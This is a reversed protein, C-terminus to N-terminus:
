PRRRHGALDADEVGGAATQDLVGGDHDLTADVVYPKMMMGATPSPAPSWRWTCRCWRTTARASAASRWCRCTTPSTTSRASAAPRRRRAPRDAAERRHGVAQHRRGDARARARRGDPRVPHQLQPLVGRGDHRRVDHRRLEPDPRHDAAARVRTEDAFTATSRPSATRSPSRRHHDGQLELRAHLAGPLRQRAAAQRALRQPVDAGDEAQTSDHVAVVNPDYRPNSVMALIAGTQPDMVVVSGERTASRM